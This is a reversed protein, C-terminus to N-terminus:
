LFEPEWLQRDSTQLVSFAVIEPGVSYERAIHPGIRLEIHMESSKFMGSVDTIESGEHQGNELFPVYGFFCFTMLDNCKKSKIATTDLISTERRAYAFVM